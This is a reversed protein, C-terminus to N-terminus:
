HATRDGLKKALLSLTNWVKFKMKDSFSGSIKERVFQYILFTELKM